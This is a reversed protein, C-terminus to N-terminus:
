SPKHWFWYEAVYDQQFTQGVHDVCTAPAAGGATNIRYIEQVDAKADAASITVDPVDPKPNSGISQLKLWPVAKSGDLGTKATTPAPIAAAKTAFTIGYKALPANLNFTATINGNTFYHHGSLADLQPCTVPNPLPTTLITNVFNSYLGTLSQDLLCTVNYLTALAGLSQPPANPDTTPCTYNQTSTLM